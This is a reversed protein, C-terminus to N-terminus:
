DARDHSESRHASGSLSRRAARAFPQSECLFEANAVIAALSHRLDHSISSAMRGITALRESEILNQQTHFLSERMRDFARALEAVEDGAVPMSRTTSIEASLPPWERSCAPCHGRSPIPSSFCWRAEWWCRWCEWASCISSQAEGSLRDGPRLVEAGYAAGESHGAAGAGANDELFREKGLQVSQPQSVGGAADPLKQRALEAELTPDLTSTVIKDEYYFAVQGSAIRGIQSAM